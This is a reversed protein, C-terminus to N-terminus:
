PATSREEQAFQHDEVTGPFVDYRHLYVERARWPPFTRMLLMSHNSRDRGVTVFLLYRTGRIRRLKVTEM